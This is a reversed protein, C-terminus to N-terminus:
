RCVRQLSSNARTRGLLYTVRRLDGCVDVSGGGESELGMRCRAVNTQVRRSAVLPCPNQPTWGHPDAACGFVPAPLYLEM